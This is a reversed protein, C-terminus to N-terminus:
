PVAIVGFGDLIAIGYLLPVCVELSTVRIGDHLYRFLQDDAVYRVFKHCFGYFASSKSPQVPHCRHGCHRLCPSPCRAVDAALHDTFKTTREVDILVTDDDGRDNHFTDGHAIQADIGRIALNM